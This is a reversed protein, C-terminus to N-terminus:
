ILKQVCEMKVFTFAHQLQFFLLLDFIKLQYVVKYKYKDDPAIIGKQVVDIVTVHGLPIEKGIHKAGERHDLNPVKRCEVNIYIASVSDAVVDKKKDIHVQEVMHSDSYGYPPLAREVAEIDRPHQNEDIDGHLVEDFQSVLLVSRPLGHLELTLRRNEERFGSEYADMYKNEGECANRDGIHRDHESYDRRDERAIEVSHHGHIKGM